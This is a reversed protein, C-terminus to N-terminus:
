IAFQVIALPYEIIINVGYERVGYKTSPLRARIGLGEDKM